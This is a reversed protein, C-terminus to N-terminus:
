AGGPRGGDGLGGGEVYSGSGINVIQLQKGRELQYVPTLVGSWADLRRPVYRELLRRREPGWAIRAERRGLPGVVVGPQHAAAHPVSRSCEKSRYGRRCGKLIGAESERSIKDATGVSISVVKRNLIQQRQAVKGTATFQANLLAGKLHGDDGRVVPQGLAVSAKRVPHGLVIALAIADDVEAALAPQIHLSVRHVQGKLHLLCLAHVPLPLEPAVPTDPVRTGIGLNQPRLRSECRCSEFRILTRSHDRHPAKGLDAGGSLVPLLTHRTLDNKCHDFIGKEGKEHAETV